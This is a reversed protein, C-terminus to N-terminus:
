WYGVPCTADLQTVKDPMWCGCQLCTNDQYFPCTECINLRSSSVTDDVYEVALVNRHWPNKTTQIDMDLPETEKEIVNITGFDEFLTKGELGKICIEYEYQMDEIFYIPDIRVTIELKHPAIRSIDLIHQNADVYILEIGDKTLKFFTQPINEDVSFAEEVFFQSFYVFQHDKEITYNMINQVM